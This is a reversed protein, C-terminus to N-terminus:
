SIINKIKKDLDELQKRSEDDIEILVFHYNKDDINLLKFVTKDPKIKTIYFDTLSNSKFYFDIKKYQSEVEKKTTNEFKFDEKAWEFLDGITYGWM